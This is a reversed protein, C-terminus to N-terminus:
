GVLETREPAVAARWFDASDASGVREHHLLITDAVWSELEAGSQLRIEELPFEPTLRASPHKVLDTSRAAVHRVLEINSAVEHLQFQRFLAALLRSRHELGDPAPIEWRVEARRRWEPPLRDFDSTTSVVVLNDPLRDVWQLLCAAMRQLVSVVSAADEGQGQIQGFFRDIGDLLVVGSHLTEAQELVARLTAESEGLAGRLCSNSDISVVPCQIAAALCRALKTKGCGPPSSVLVRRPFFDNHGLQEMAQEVWVEVRDQLDRPIGLHSLPPLRSYPTYEVTGLRTFDAAVSEDRLVLAREDVAGNQLACQRLAQRFERMPSPYFHFALDIATDPDVPPYGEEEAFALATEFLVSPTPPSFPVLRFISGMDDIGAFRAMLIDDDVVIVVPALVGRAQIDKLVRTAQGGEWWGTGRVLCIPVVISEGTREVRRQSFDSLLVLANARAAVPLPFEPLPEWAREQTDERRDTRHRRLGVGEECVFLQYELALGRPLQPSLTRHSHSAIAKLAAEVEDVEGGSVGILRQGSQIFYDLAQEFDSIYNGGALMALHLRTAIDAATPRRRQDPYLCERFIHKLATPVFHAKEPIDTALDWHLGRHVSRAEDFPPRNTTLEYLVVGLGWSDYKIKEPSYSEGASFEEPAAYRAETARKLGALRIWSDKLVFLPRPEGSDEASSQLLVISRPDVNGHVIGRDHLESLSLSISYAIGLVPQFDTGDRRTSLFSALTTWSDATESAPRHYVLVNLSHECQGRDLTLQESRTPILHGAANDLEAQHIREVARGLQGAIDPSEQLQDDPIQLLFRAGSDDRAAFTRFTADSWLERELVYPGLRDREKLGTILSGLPQVKETESEAGTVQYIQYLSTILEFQCAEKAHYFAEVGSDPDKAWREFYEAALNGVRSLGEQAKAEPFVLDMWSGIFFRVGSDLFLKPYSLGEEGPERGASFCCNAFVVEPVAVTWRHGSGTQRTGLADALHRITLVYKESLKWGGPREKSGPELHGLFLIANHERFIQHILSARRKEDELEPGRFVDVELANDLRDQIEEAVSQFDFEQDPQAHLIALSRRRKCRSVVQKRQDLTRYMPCVSDRWVIQGDDLEVPALEPLLWCTEYDLHLKTKPFEGLAHGLHWGMSVLMARAAEVPYRQDSELAKVMARQFDDRAAEASAWDSFGDDGDFVESGNLLTTMTLFRQDVKKFQALALKM